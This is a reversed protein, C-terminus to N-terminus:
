GVTVSIKGNWGNCRYLIIACAGVGGEWMCCVIWKTMEMELTMM